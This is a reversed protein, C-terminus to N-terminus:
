GSPYFRYPVWWAAHVAYNLWTFQVMFSYLVVFAAGLGRTTFIGAIRPLIALQLPLLYLSIRDVATTSPLVFLLVLLAVSMLSFNRWILRESEEFRFRNKFLFFAVAPIACMTVRIAAGQSAYRAEIYNVIFRKTESALFLDYFLATVTGAVLFNILKSRETALAILPFAVVATRHFMAAVAVYAAIRLMSAGQLRSALGAMLLGLAVAQRTYGMAVVIVLYPVAVVLVLWPHPQTQAFRVLGFTFIAACILNVLWVEAGLNGAFWNVFQYGVEGVAVADSLSKTATYRFMLVYSDWDAGVRYRLGVLAVIVLGGLMLPIFPNQAGPHRGNRPTNVASALAPVAFFAFLLWYVAM